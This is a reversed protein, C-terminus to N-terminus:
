VEVGRRVSEKVSERVLLGDPHPSQGIYWFGCFVVAVEVGFDQASHLPRDCGYEKRRRSKADYINMVSEITSKHVRITQAKLTFELPIFNDYTEV